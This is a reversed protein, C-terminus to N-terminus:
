VTLRLQLAKYHQNSKETAELQLRRLEEQALNSKETAELQLRRLVAQEAMLELYKEDFTKVRKEEVAGSFENEKEM